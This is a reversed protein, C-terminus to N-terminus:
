LELDDEYTEYFDQIVDHTSVCRHKMLNSQKNDITLFLSVMTIVFTKYITDISFCM